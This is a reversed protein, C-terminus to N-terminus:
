DMSMSAMVFRLGPFNETALDTFALARSRTPWGFGARTTSDSGRVPRSVLCLGLSSSTIRSASHPNQPLLKTAVPRDPPRRTKRRTM